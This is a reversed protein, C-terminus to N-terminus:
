HFHSSTFWGCSHRRHSRKIERKNFGFTDGGKEQILEGKEEWFDKIIAQYHMEVEYAHPIDKVEKALINVKTVLNQVYYGELSRTARFFQIGTEETSNIFFLHGQVEITLPLKGKEEVGRTVVSMVIEPTLGLPPHVMIRNYEEMITTMEQTRKTILTSLEGKEAAQRIVEPQLHLRKAASNINLLVRKGSVEMEVYIKKGIFSFLSLFRSLLSFGEIITVAVRFRKDRAGMVGLRYMEKGQHILAGKEDLTAEAVKPKIFL